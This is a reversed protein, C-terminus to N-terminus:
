ECTDISLLKAQHYIQLRLKHACWQERAVRDHRENLKEAIELATQRLEASATAFSPVPYDRLLKVLNATDSKSHLFAYNDRGDRHRLRRFPSEDGQPGCSGHFALVPEKWSRELARLQHLYEELQLQTDHLIKATASSATPQALSLVTLRM